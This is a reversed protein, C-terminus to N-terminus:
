KLEKKRFGLYGVGRVIVFLVCSYILTTDFMGLIEETIVNDEIIMEWAAIDVGIRCCLHLSWM